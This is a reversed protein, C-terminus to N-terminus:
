KTKTIKEQIEQNTLLLKAKEVRELLEDLFVDIRFM